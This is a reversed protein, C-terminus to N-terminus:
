APPRLHGRARERLKGGLNARRESRQGVACQGPVKIPAVASLQRGPGREGRAGKRDRASRARPKSLSHGIPALYVKLDGIKSLSVLLDDQIGRLLLADDKNGSLNEFPLVAISKTTDEVKQPPALRLVFLLSVLSLAAAAGLGALSPNRRAWRWAHTIPNARRALIARRASFAISIM